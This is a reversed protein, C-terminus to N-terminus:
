VFGDCAKNQSKLDLAICAIWSHLKQSWVNQPGVLLHPSQDFLRWSYVCGTSEAYYVTSGGGGLGLFVVIKLSMTYVMTCDTYM